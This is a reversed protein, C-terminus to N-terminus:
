QTYKREQEGILSSGILFFCLFLFYTLSVGHSALEFTQSELTVGLKASSLVM